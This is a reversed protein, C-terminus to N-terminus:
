ALQTLYLLSSTHSSQLVMGNQSDRNSSSYASKKRSVLFMRAFGGILCVILTRRRNGPTSYLASWKTQKAEMEMKLTQTIERM